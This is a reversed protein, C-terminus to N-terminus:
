HLEALPAFVQKPSKLPPYGYTPLSLSELREIFVPTIVLAWFFSYAYIHFYSLM